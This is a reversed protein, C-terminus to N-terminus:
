GFFSIKERRALVYVFAGYLWLYLALTRVEFYTALFSQFSVAIVAGLFGLALGRVYPDDAQQWTRLAVFALMFIM